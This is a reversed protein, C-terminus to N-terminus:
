RAESVNKRRSGTGFAEVEADTKDVAEHVVCDRDLSQKGVVVENVVRATKGVVAEEGTAILESPGDAKL